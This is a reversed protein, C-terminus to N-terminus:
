KVLQMRRTKHLEESMLTYFYIGSPVPRGEDNRGDWIIEHWGSGMSENLLNRIEQGQVNYIILSATANRPLSFSIKTNPNFPNPYNQDLAFVDPAAVTVAIPGHCNMRGHYDIDALKYFYTEGKEVGFDEYQYHRLVQSIGAGPIVSCTIQAFPGNLHDSRFIQFGQNEEESQTTWNLLVCRGTDTAAFRHLEVPLSIDKFELPLTEESGTIDNDNEDRVSFDSVGNNWLINYHDPEIQYRILVTVIRVPNGGISECGGSSFGYHYYIRGYPPSVSSHDFIEIRNGYSNFPFLQGDFSVERVHTSFFPDLIFSGQFDHIAHSFSDMSTAIVDIKLTGEGKAPVDHDNSMFVLHTNIVPTSALVGLEQPMHPSRKNLRDYDNIWKDSRIKDIDNQETFSPAKVKSSGSKENNNMKSFVITAIHLTIILFLAPRKEM